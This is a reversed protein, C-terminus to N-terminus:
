RGVARDLRAQALRFAALARTRGLQAALLEQQASLVDTNPAVGANFREAVVRRAETASTVGDTAAAISARAADLDLRRQRIEFALFTDFDALRQEAARETAAIEALDAKVRGGDWFSWAVSVGADWSYRWSDMRPFIRPNPRALDVGSGVAITPKLGAAVAKQRESIGGIRLQLAQRESRNARADALLQALAPAEPLPGELAADLEIAIDPDIGTIRRLDAEAVDRGNRAEIFLVQQRSRQAEASLVDNPAVLGVQRMTRVDHLHADMLKLAEEVVGVAQRATVLSWFARAADLRADARTVTLDKGMADVEAQAARELAQVRGSTYVPWQVDLRARWNDPLDPYIVRPPFGPVTIAFEDVHNTRSYGGLLSFTPMDAAARAAASAKAADERAQAEGIRHSTRLARDIADSLTLRITAAGAASQALLQTAAATAGAFAVALAISSITLTWRHEHTM